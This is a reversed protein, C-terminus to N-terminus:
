GGSSMSMVEAARATWSGEGPVCVAPATGSLEVAQVSVTFSGTPFFTGLSEGTAGAADGRFSGDTDDCFLLDMESGETPTVTGSVESGELQDLRDPMKMRGKPVAGWHNGTITIPPGAAGIQAVLTFPSPTPAPADFTLAGDDSLDFSLSEVLVADQNTMGGQRRFYRVLEPNDSAVFLVYLNFLEANVLDAPDENLPNCPDVPDDDPDCVGVRFTAFTTTRGPRDGIALAECRNAGIQLLAKGAPDLALHFEDPVVPDVNEAPVRIFAQVGTCNTEAAIVPPRPGHSAAAPASLLVLALALLAKKM